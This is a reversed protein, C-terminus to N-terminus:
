PIWNKKFAEQKQPDANALTYTPRTCSFGLSHLLWLAGRKSYSIGFTKKIWEQLLPATWNMEVPFGVDKPVFNAVVHYVQQRQEETLLCPRGPSHKMRLAKLGGENYTNIYRYTTPIGRGIILAIEKIAYGQLYLFIAQLREKLRLVKCSNMVRKLRKIKRAILKPPLQNSQKM